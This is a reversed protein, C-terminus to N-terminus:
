FCRWSFSLSKVEPACRSGWGFGHGAHRNECLVTIGQLCRSFWAFLVVNAMEEAPASVMAKGERESGPGLVAGSQRLSGFIVKLGGSFVAAALPCSPTVRKKEQKGAWMALHGSWPCCVGQPVMHQQFAPLGFVGEPQDARVHGRSCDRRWIHVAM